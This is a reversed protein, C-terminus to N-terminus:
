HHLREASLHHIKQKGDADADRRECKEGRRLADKYCAQCCAPCVIEGCPAAAVRKAGPPVYVDFVYGCDSCRRKQLTGTM